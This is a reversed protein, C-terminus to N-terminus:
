MTGLRNLWCHPDQANVDGTHALALARCGRCFDHYHCTACVSGEQLAATERSLYVARQAMGPHFVVQKEASELLGCGKLYGRFDVTAGNAFLDCGLRIGKGRLPELDLLGEEVLLPVWLKDRFALNFGDARHRYYYHLLDLLFGRWEQPTLDEFDADEALRGLQGVRGEAVGDLHLSHIYPLSRRVSELNEKGVSLHWVVPLGLSRAMKSREELLKLTDLGRHADHVPAEGYFTMKLSLCGTEKLRAARKRTLTSANCKVFYRINNEALFVLLEDFRTYLFPDGGVLSVVFNLGTERAHAAYAKLHGTLVGFDVEGQQEYIDAGCYSCDNLCRTTLECELSIMNAYSAARQAFINQIHAKFALDYPASDVRKGRLTSAVAGPPMDPSAEVLYGKAELINLVYYVTAADAQCALVDVIEDTSRRGDILPVIKEYTGGHLAKAADESLILVGEGPIIKVHLQAKFAPTNLM